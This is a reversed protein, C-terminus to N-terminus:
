REPSAAARATAAACRPPRRRLGLEAAEVHGVRGGGRRRQLPQERVRSRGM